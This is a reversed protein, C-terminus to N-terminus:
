DVEETKTKATGNNGNNNSTANNNQDGNKATGM